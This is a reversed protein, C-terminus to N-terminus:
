FLSAVTFYLLLGVIGWAAVELVPSIRIGKFAHTKRLSLLVVVLGIPLIFANLYGAFILLNVPRGFIFNILLSVAVFGLAWQKKYTVFTPSLDKLFALSTYTAGVVSTVSAAWIMVGFLMKGWSGFYSEFITGVPNDPKLVTGMLVVSLVGIFLFYRFVGTFLIGTYASREVKKQNEKGVVGADLLRQAGAFTIYGGVTGGVLTITAKVDIKEPSFTFRFAKFMDVDAKLVMLVLLAIMAVAMIKMFFDVKPLFNNRYFLIGVIIASILTGTFQPIDFMANMGMGTGALNGVNFVLGGFAIFVIIAPGLGRVLTNALKQISTNAFTLTKWIAVQAVIDIAISLVIVFGLNYLLKEAFVTTQTLFGPGVASTAMITAAAFLDKRSSKL